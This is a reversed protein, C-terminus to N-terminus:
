PLWWKHSAKAACSGVTVVTGAASTGNPDRLCRSAKANRLQGSGNATWQQWALGDCGRLRLPAFNSSSAVAVCLNGARIATGSILWQENTAGSGCTGTVVPADKAFHTRSLCVGLVGSAVTGARLASLASQVDAVYNSYVGSTYTAWPGFAQGRDSISYAADANCQAVFACSDQTASQFQSNLQWLGRDYYSPCNVPPYYGDKGTQDCYYVTPQGGSEAVCIAGATVLPGTASTNAWGAAAASAACTQAAQSARASSLPGLAGLPAVSAQRGRASGAHMRPMSRSPHAAHSAGHGTRGSPQPTPGAAAIALTLGVALLATSLCGLVARTASGIM